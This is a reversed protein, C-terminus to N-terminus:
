IEYSHIICSSYFYYLFFYFNLSAVDGYSFSPAKRRIKPLSQKLDECSEKLEILTKAIEHLNAAIGILALRTKDEESLSEYFNENNM